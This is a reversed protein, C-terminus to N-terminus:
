PWPTLWPINRRPSTNGFTFDALAEMTRRGGRMGVGLALASGGWGRLIEVGEVGEVGKGEGRGDQLVWCQYARLCRTETGCGGRGDSVPFPPLPHPDNRTSIFACGM